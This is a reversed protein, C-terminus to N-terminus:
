HKPKPEKQPAPANVTVTGQVGAVATGGGAKQEIKGIQMSPAAPAPIQSKTAAASSARQYALALGGLVCVAALAYAAPVFWRSDRGGKRALIPSLVGFVLALAFGALGLPDTVVKTWDM